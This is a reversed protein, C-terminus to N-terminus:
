NKNGELIAREVELNRNNANEETFKEPFRAKLKAINRSLGEEFDHWNCCEVINQLAEAEFDVDIERNYVIYKKVLDQLVSIWYYLDNLEEENYYSLRQRKPAFDEFNKNRLTCYNAVYWCIDIQEEHINVKDRNRIADQLENLESGMGLVMHALDLRLDGLYAVTRTAAQQYEKLNM